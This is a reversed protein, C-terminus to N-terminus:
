MNQWMAVIIKIIFYFLSQVDLFFGKLCVGAGVHHMM